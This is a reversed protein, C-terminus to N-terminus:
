FGQKGCGPATSACGSCSSRGTGVTSLSRPDRQFRHRPPTHQLRPQRCQGDKHHDPYAALHRHREGDCRLTHHRTKPNNRGGAQSSQLQNTFKLPATTPQHWRGAWPKGVSDMAAEPCHHGAHPRCTAVLVEGPTLHHPPLADSAAGFPRAAPADEFAVNADPRPGDGFRPTRTVGCPGRMDLTRLALAIVYSSSARRPPNAGVPKCWDPFPVTDGTGRSMPTLRRRTSGVQPPM